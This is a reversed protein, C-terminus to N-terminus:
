HRRSSPQNTITRRPNKPVPFLCNARYVTKWQGKDLLQLARGGLAALVVRAEGGAWADLLREFQPASREFPFFYSWFGAVGFNLEDGNQLGLTIPLSLGDQTPFEWLVEIPANPDVSYALRHAEAFRTFLATAEDSYDVM